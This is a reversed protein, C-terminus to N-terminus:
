YTAEAFVFLGLIVLLCESSKASIRHGGRLKCEVCVVLLRCIRSFYGGGDGMRGSGAGDPAQSNWSVATPDFAELSTSEM